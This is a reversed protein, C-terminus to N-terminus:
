TVLDLRAARLRGPLLVPIADHVPFAEECARCLWQTETATLPSQCDPCALTGPVREPSIAAVAPLEEAPTSGERALRRLTFTYHPDAQLREVTFGHRRFLQRLEALSHFLFRHTSDTPGILHQRGDQFDVIHMPVSLVAKGNDRLVRAIEAVMRDPKPTHELVESAVVVEFSEAAFPLHESYGCVLTGPSAGHVIRGIALAPLSLDLGVWSEMRDYREALPVFACGIDLLAGTEGELEGLLRQLRIADPSEPNGHMELHVGFTRLAYTIYRNLFETLSVEASAPITEAHQWEPALREETVYGRAFNLFARELATETGAPMLQEILHPPFQPHRVVWEFQNLSNALQLPPVDGAAVKLLRSFEPGYAQRYRRLKYQGYCYEVGPLTRLFRRLAPMHSWERHSRDSNLTV